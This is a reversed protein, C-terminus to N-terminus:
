KNTGKPVEGLWKVELCRKLRLRARFLIVALNTAEVGLVKCVEETEISDVVRLSFAQGLREPLADLCRQFVGWFESDQFLDAPDFRWKPPPSKWQGIRGFTAEIVDDPDNPSFSQTSRRGQQKLYDLIKHRLIGLLWTRETSGGRFTERSKLAALLSEQVIDESAQRDRIRQRAFRFMMDGYLAPWQSPDTMANEARRADNSSSEPQISSM